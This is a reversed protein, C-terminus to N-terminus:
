FYKDVPLYEGYMSDWVCADYAFAYKMMFTKKQTYNFEGKIKRFPFWRRNKWFLTWTKTKPNYEEKFYIKKKM